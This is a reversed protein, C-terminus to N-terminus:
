LDQARGRHEMILRMGQLHYRGGMQHPTDEKGKPSLSGQLVGPFAPAGRETVLNYLNGRHKKINTFILRKNYLRVGLVNITNMLMNM